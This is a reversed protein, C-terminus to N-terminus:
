AKGLALAIGGAIGGAPLPGPGPAGRLFSKIDGKEILKPELHILMPITLFLFLFIIRSWYLLKVLDGYKKEEDYIGKNEENKRYKKYEFYM